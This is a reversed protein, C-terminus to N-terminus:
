HSALEWDSIHKEQKVQHKVMFILIGVLYMDVEM